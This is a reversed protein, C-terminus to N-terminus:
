DIKKKVPPCESKVVCLGNQEILTEVITKKTNLIKKMPKGEGPESHLVINFQSMQLLINVNNM